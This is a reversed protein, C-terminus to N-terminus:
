QKNMSNINCLALLFHFSRIVESNWITLYKSYLEHIKWCFIWNAWLSESSFAFDRKNSHIFVVNASLVIVHRMIIHRVIAIINRYHVKDCWIHQMLHALIWHHDPTTDDANRCIIHCGRTHLWIRQIIHARYSKMQDAWKREPATRIINSLFDCCIM